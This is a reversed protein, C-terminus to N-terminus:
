IQAPGAVVRKTAKLLPRSMSLSTFSFLFIRIRSCITRGCAYGFGRVVNSVVDHVSFVPGHFSALDLAPVKIWVVLRAEPHIVDKVPLYRFVADLPIVRIEM